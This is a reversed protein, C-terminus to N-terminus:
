VICEKAGNQFGSAFSNELRLNKTLFQQFKQQYKVFQQLIQWVKASNASNRSFKSWNKELNEWFAAIKLDQQLNFNFPQLNTFIQIKRVILTRKSFFEIKM